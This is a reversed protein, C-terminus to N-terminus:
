DDKRMAHAFYSDPGYGSDDDLGRPEVDDDDLLLVEGPDALGPGACWTRWDWGPEDCPREPHVADVRRQLQDSLELQARDTIPQLHAETVTRHCLWCLLRLNSLEDGPGDIHDIEAGVGECLM